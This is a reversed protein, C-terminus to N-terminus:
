GLARESPRGVDVGSIYLFTTIHTHIIAIDFAHNDLLPTIVICINGRGVDVAGTFVM